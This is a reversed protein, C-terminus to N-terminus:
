QGIKSLLEQLTWAHDTLGSEVPYAQDAAEVVTRENSVIMSGPIPM